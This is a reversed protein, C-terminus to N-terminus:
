NTFMKSQLITLKYIKMKHMIRITEINDKILLKEIKDLYRNIYLKMKFVNEKNVKKFFEEITTDVCITNYSTLFYIDKANNMNLTVHKGYKKIVVPNNIEEM